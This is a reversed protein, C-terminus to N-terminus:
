EVAVNGAAIEVVVFAVALVSFANLALITSGVLCGLLM